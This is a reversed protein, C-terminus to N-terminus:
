LDILSTANPNIHKGEKNALSYHPIAHINLFRYLPSKSGNVILYNPSGETKDEKIADRWRNEDADISFYVLQIGKEILYEKGDTTNLIIWRCGICWSAWFDFYCLDVKQEALFSKLTIRRNTKM